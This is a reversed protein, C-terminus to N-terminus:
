LALRYYYIGLHLSIVQTIAAIRDARPLEMQLTRRLDRRFRDLSHQCFAGGSGAAVGALAEASREILKAASAAGAPGGACTRGAELFLTDLLTMGEEGSVAGLLESILEEDVAGDRTTCLFPLINGRFMRYQAEKYRTGDSEYRSTGTRRRDLVTHA